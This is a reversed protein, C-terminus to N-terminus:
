PAPRRGAPARVGAAGFLVAADEHVTVLIPVVVFGSFFLYGGAAGIGDLGMLTICWALAAVTHALALAASARYAWPRPRWLAEAAVGALAALLACSARAAVTAWGPAGETPMWALALAMLAAFAAAFAAAVHFGRPTRASM